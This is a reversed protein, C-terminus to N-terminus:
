ETKTADDKEAFYADLHKQLGEPLDFSEACYKGHDTLTYVTIKPYFKVLVSSMLAQIDDVHQAGIIELHGDDPCSSIEYMEFDGASKARELIEALVEEKITREGSRSSIQYFLTLLIDRSESSIM